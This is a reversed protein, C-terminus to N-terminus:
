MRVVALQGAGKSLGLVEEPTLVYGYVRVDDMWGTFYNIAGASGVYLWDTSSSSSKVTNIPNAEFGIGFPALTDHYGNIFVRINNACGLGGVLSNGPPLCM